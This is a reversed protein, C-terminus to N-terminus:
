LMLGFLVVLCGVLGGGFMGLKHGSSTPAVAPGDFEVPSPAPALRHRMSMVVVILKEGQECAKQNGSVFYFAGSRDLKVLANKEDDKHEELPATTRCALYDERSVKLVLYDGVQFRNIEAWKNLSESPSSPVKWAGAAGGVLFEKAQSSTILFLLPFAIWYLSAM